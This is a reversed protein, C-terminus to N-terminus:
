HRFADGKKDVAEVIVVAEKPSSGESTMRTCFPCVRNQESLCDAALDTNISDDISHM